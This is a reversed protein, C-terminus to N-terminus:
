RTERVPAVVAAASTEFFRVAEDVEEVCAKTTRGGADRKVLVASGFRGGTAMMLSGDRAKVATLGDTDRRLVTELDVPAQEVPPAGPPDAAEDGACASLVLVVALVTRMWGRYLTQRGPDTIGRCNRAGGLGSTLFLDSRELDQCSDLCERNFRSYKASAHRQCNTPGIRLSAVMTARAM